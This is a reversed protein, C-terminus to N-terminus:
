PVCLGHQTAPALMGCILVHPARTPSKPTWRVKGDIILWADDDTTHTAVEAATYRCVRPVDRTVVSVLVFACAAARARGCACEPLENENVPTADKPADPNRLKRFAQVTLQVGQQYSWLPKYGLLQTAQWM